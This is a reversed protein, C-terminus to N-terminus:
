EAPPNIMDQIRGSHNRRTLVLIRDNPELVTPGTAIFNDLGRQIAMVLTESPFGLAMLTKGSVLSKQDVIFELIEISGDGLSQVNEVQGERIISLISNAVSLRLSVAVDIGLQRAIGVYNSSDVLCISRSVGLRNAYLGVLVNREELDTCAVVVDCDALQEEKFLNEDAIDGHIVLSHKLSDALYKCRHYDEEVIRVRRRGFMHRLGVLGKDFGGLRNSGDLYSAVAEAIRGGGVILVNHVAQQKKGLFEFVADFDQERAAIFLQDNEKITAEGSPILYGDNRGILPILFKTNLGRAAEGIKQNHLQSGINVRFNRVQIDMNQFSVIDSVAGYALSTLISTAASTEPNIIHDIGAELTQYLRGQGYELTRIRAITKIAPFEAAVLACSIINIEDSGTLAVFVQCSALGAKLLDALNNIRGHVSMCDLRNALDKVVNDNFDLVVVDNGDAALTRAVQFGIVGAGGVLIRM